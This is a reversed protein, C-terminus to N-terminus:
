KIWKFFKWIRDWISEKIMGPLRQPLVFPLTLTREVIGLVGKSLTDVPRPAVQPASIKGEVMFYAVLLKEEKGLLIYDVFPVLGVVREITQFPQVGVLMKLNDQALRIDGVASMNMSTGRLLLNQTHAVGENFTFDGRIWDFPMGEEVVDPLRAEVLQYVNLLSFVKSLWSLRHLRGKLFELSLQGDLSQLAEPENEGSASLNGNLSVSGSLLPRQLKFPDLFTKANLDKAWLHLSLSAPNASPARFSGEIHILGENIKAELERVELADGQGVLSFRANQFPTGRFQLAGIRGNGEAFAQFLPNTRIQDALSRVLDVKEPLRIDEPFLDDLNLEQGSLQFNFRPQSNWSLDGTLSLPPRNGQVWESRMLLEKGKVDLSAGVRSLPKVLSPFLLEQGELKLQGNVQLGNLDKWSGNLDLNGELIAEGGYGKRNDFALELLHLPNLHHIALSLQVLPQDMGLAFKGRAQVESSLLSFIAQDIVLVPGKLPSAEAGQELNTEKGFAQIMADEGQLLVGKLTFRDRTPSFVQGDSLQRSLAELGLEHNFQLQQTTGQLSLKLPLPGASTPLPPFGSPLFAQLDRAELPATMHLDMMPNPRQLDVVNGELTFPSSGVKGTLSSTEVQDPSFSLIGQLNSFPLPFPARYLSAGLLKLEGSFTEPYDGEAQGELRLRLDAQGELKDLMALLPLPFPQDTPSLATNRLEELNVRINFTLDLPTDEVFLGLVGEAKTIQSTQWNGTTEQFYLKGEKLIASGNLNELPPLEDSFRLSPGQFAFEGTFLGRRVAEKFDRLEELKGKTKLTFSTIKGDLVKEGLFKTLEPHFLKWPLYLKAEEFLFPSTSSQATMQWNGTPLRQASLNGEMSFDGAKLALEQLNIGKDDLSLQYTLFASELHFPQLFAHPDSFHLPHFRVKGKSRFDQLSKGQFELEADLLGTPALSPPISPSFTWVLQPDLDKTELHIHSPSAGSPPTLAGVLRFSAGAKSPASLLRGKGEFPWPDKPSIGQLTLDLAATMKVSPLRTAQDILEVKGGQIELETVQKLTFPGIKWEGKDGRDRWQSLSHGLFRFEGQRDWILSIEPKLLILRQVRLDGGLMSSSDVELRLRPIVLADGKGGPDKVRFDTLDLSIKGREPPRKVEKRDSAASVVQNTEEALASPDNLSGLSWQWVWVIALSLLFLVFGALSIQYTTREKHDFM